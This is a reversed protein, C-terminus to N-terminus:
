PKKKFFDVGTINRLRGRLQGKTSSSSSYKKVTNAIDEWSVEKGTANAQQFLQFLKGRYGSSKAVIDGRYRLNFLKIKNSPSLNTIGYKQLFPEFVDQKFASIYRKSLEVTDDASLRGRGNIVKAIEAKSKGMSELANIALRKNDRFSVDIGFGLTNSWAGGKYTGKSFIDAGLESKLIDSTLEKLTYQKPRGNIDRMTFTGIEKDELLGGSYGKVLMEHTSASPVTKGYNISVDKGKYIDKDKIDVQGYYNPVKLPSEGTFRNYSKDVISFEMDSTPTSFVSTGLEKSQKRIINDEEASIFDLIDNFAEGLKAM